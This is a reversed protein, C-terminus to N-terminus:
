DTKQLQSSKKSKAKQPGNESPTCTQVEPLVFVSLFTNKLFNNGTKMTLEISEHIPCPNNKGCWNKGFPCVLATKTQEFLAVIDMIAISEPPRGLRYGGGIGTQGEALGARALQTLLKATLARSIGRAESIKKTDALQNKPLAALYSMVSIANAATKGYIFM